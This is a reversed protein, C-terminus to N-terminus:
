ENLLLVAQALEIRKIKNYLLYWLVASLITILLCSMMLTSSKFFWNIIPNYDTVMSLFFYLNTELLFGETGALYLEVFNGAIGILLGTGGLFLIMPLKTHLTRIDHEKKIFLSYFKILSVLIIAIAVGSLPIIFYSSRLFFEKTSIITGSIITISILIILLIIREWRSQAQDSLRNLLRRFFSEHVNVLEKLAEESFDFKEKILEMANEESKGKDIQFEFMDKMDAALELLIRSKEPQPLTLRKNIKRLLPTFRNM